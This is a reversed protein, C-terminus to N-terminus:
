TSFIACFISAIFSKHKAYKNACELASFVSSQVSFMFAVFFSYIISNYFPDIFANGLTGRVQRTVIPVTYQLAVAVCCCPFLLAFAVCLCRACLASLVCAVVVVHVCICVEIEQGPGAGHPCQIQTITGNIEKLLDDKILGNKQFDAPVIAEDKGDEEEGSRDIQQTGHGAFVIWGQRRPRANLWANMAKMEAIINAKTPVTYRAPMDDRMIKVNYGHRNLKKEFAACDAVTGPLANEIQGDAEHFLRCHNRKQVIIFVLAPKYGSGGVNACAQRM